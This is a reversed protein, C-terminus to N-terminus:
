PNTAPNKEHWGPKSRDVMPRRSQHQSKKWKGSRPAAKEAASTTSPNTIQTTKDSSQEITAAVAASTMFVVGLGVICLKKWSM